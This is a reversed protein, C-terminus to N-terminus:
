RVRLVLWDQRHVRHEAVAESWYKTPLAALGPLRMVDPLRDRTPIKEIAHSERFRAQLTTSIAPNVYDHCEVIVDCRRLAPAAEPDLLEFEPGDCDMILLTKGQILRQLEAHTCRGLLNIRSEVKNLGALERCRAIAPEDIDFGFVEARPMRIALGVAYYGSACGVDIVRDYGTAVFGELAPSLEEEYCGLLKPVLCGEDADSICTMGRFTGTQVALGHRRIIRNALCQHFSLSKDWPDMLLLHKAAWNQVGLPLPLSIISRKTVAALRRKVTRLVRGIAGPPQREGGATPLGSCRVRLLKPVNQSTSINMVRQIGM